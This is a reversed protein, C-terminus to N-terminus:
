FVIDFESKHDSDYFIKPSATKRGKGAPGPPLQGGRGGGETVGSCPPDLFEAYSRLM